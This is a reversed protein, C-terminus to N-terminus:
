GSFWSELGLAVTTGPLTVPGSLGEDVWGVLM